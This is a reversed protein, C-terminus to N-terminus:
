WEKPKSEPTIINFTEGSPEVVYFGQELAHIKAEPTIIAGAVAGLFTRTDGKSDAILRMKELRQIHRKVDKTELNTKVEVLLAKDGAELLLDIELALNLKKHSIKANPYINEFNLGIKSFKKLLNPAVLSEILKGFQNTFDGFRKNYKKIERDFKEKDLKAQRDFEQKSKELSLAYEEQKRGVEQLIAWVTEATAGQPYDIHTDGM